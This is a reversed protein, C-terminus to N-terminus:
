KEPLSQILFLDEDDRKMKYKERAYKEIAAPNNKLENAFKSEQSIQETYYLKSQQLNKLEKRREWQTFVDNRDFFLMWALFVVTALLFKNRLWSPVYSLLKM